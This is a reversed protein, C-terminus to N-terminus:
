AEAPLSEGALFGSAELVYRRAASAARVPALLEAKWAGAAATDEFRFALDPAPQGAEFGWRPGRRVTEKVEKLLSGENADHGLHLPRTWTLCGLTRAGDLGEVGGDRPSGALDVALRPLGTWRRTSKLWPTSARIRHLDGIYKRSSEVIQMLGSRM